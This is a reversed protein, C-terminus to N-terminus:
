LTDRHINRYEAPSVGVKKRFLKAFHSNYDMGCANFAESVTSNNVLLALKLKEVKIDTYFEHPTMGTHKKFLKTFYSKSLCAARAIEDANFAEKWHTEIYNKGLEVEEKGRYLKNVLFIATFYNVSGDENILPFITIDSSIAQVDRDVINGGCKLDAYPTSFDHLYVVKGQLVQRIKETACHRKVIPDEFVNYKGIHEELRDIGIVDLAAKNILRVTGDRSFVQIPYPIFEIIKALLEKERAYDQIHESFLRQADELIM